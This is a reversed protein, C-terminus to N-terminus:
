GPSSALDYQPVTGNQVAARIEDAVNNYKLQVGEALQGDGLEFHSRVRVTYEKVMSAHEELDDLVVKRAPWGPNYLGWNQIVAEATGVVAEGIKKVSSAAFTASDTLDSKQEYLRIMDLLAGCHMRIRRVADIGLQHVPETEYIAIAALRYALIRDVASVLEHNVTAIEKRRGDREFLLLGIPLVLAAVTAGVTGLASWAEWDIPAHFFFKAVEGSCTTM